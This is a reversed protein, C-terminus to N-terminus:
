GNRTREQGGTNETDWSDHRGKEAIHAPPVARMREAAEIKAQAVRERRDAQIMARLALWFLFLVGISPLIAAVYKM